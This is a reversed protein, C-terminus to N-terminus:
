FDSFLFFFYLRLEITNLRKSLSSSKRFVTLYIWIDFDNELSNLDKSFKKLEIIQINLDDTLVIEPHNKDSIQFKWRYQEVKRFLEFNVFNISYLKPLKTYDQGKGISGSLM